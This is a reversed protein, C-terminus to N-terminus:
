FHNIFSICCSALMSKLNDWKGTKDSQLMPAIFHTRLANHTLALAYKDNNKREKEKRGSLNRGSPAQRRNQIKAHREIYCCFILNLWCFHPAPAGEVGLNDNIPSCCAHSGTFPNSDPPTHASNSLSSGRQRICYKISM